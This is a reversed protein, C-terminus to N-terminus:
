KPNITLAFQKHISIIDFRYKRTWGKFQQKGKEIVHSDLWFLVMVNQLLGRTQQHYPELGASQMATSGQISEKIPDGTQTERRQEIM